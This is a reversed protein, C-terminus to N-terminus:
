ASIDHFGYNFEGVAVEDLGGAQQHQAYRHRTAAAAVVRRLGSGPRPGRVYEDADIGVAGHM